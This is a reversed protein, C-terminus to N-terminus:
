EDVIVPFRLEEILRCDADVACLTILAMIEAKCTVGINVGLRALVIM